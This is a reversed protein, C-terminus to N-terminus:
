LLPIDGPKGAGPDLSRWDPTFDASCHCYGQDGFRRAREAECLSVTDFPGVTNVPNQPTSGPPHIHCSTSGVAIAGSSLLLVVAILPLRM